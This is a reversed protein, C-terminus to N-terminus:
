VCISKLQNIFQNRRLDYTLVAPDTDSTSYLATTSVSVHGIFLQIDKLPVGLNTMEKVLTARGSLSSADTVGAWDALMHKIHEQLTNPSYANNQQNLIFPQEARAKQNNIEDQEISRLKLYRELDCRLNLDNIPLVRTTKHHRKIEPYYNEAKIDFGLRADLAVSSVVQSFEERSVNFGIQNSSRIRQGAGVINKIVIHDSLGTIQNSEDLTAIDGIRVNAIEKSTMGLDFCLRLIATNKEPYRYNQISSFVHRVESRNLTKTKGKPRPV